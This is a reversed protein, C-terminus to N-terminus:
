ESRASRLVSGIEKQYRKGDKLLQTRFGKLIATCLKPPYVQCAVVRGGVLHLHRHWHEGGHSNSCRESVAEAICQSKTAWTTPKFVWGIGEGDESKMGRPCM